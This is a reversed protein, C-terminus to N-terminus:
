PKTKAAPYRSDDDVIWWFEPSIASAVRPDLQRGIEGADLLKADTGAGRAMMLYHESETKCEPDSCVFLMRRGHGAAFLGAFGASWDDPGAGVFIVRAFFSPEQRVVWAAQKVGAGFAAMVVSGPAVHKAFRGKLAHLAARLEKEGDEVGGWGYRAPELKLDKRLVGRPCLVFPHSKAIGVWTGCQWEPRDADGHLAIVIPRPETAGLPVAVSAKEFGPVDLDVLWSPAALPPLPEPRKALVSNSTSKSCRCGSLAVAVVLPLVLAV